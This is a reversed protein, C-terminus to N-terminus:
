VIGGPPLPRMRNRRSALARAAQSPSLGPDPLLALLKQAQASRKAAEEQDAASKLAPAPAPAPVHQVPAESRAHDRKSFRVRGKATLPRASEGSITSARVQARVPRSSVAAGPAVEGLRDAASTARARMLTSLLSGPQPLPAAVAPAVVPSPVAVSALAPRPVLGAALSPVSARLWVQFRRPIEAWPRGRGGILSARLYEIHEPRPPCPGVARKGIASELAGYIVHRLTLRGRTGRAPGKIGEGHHARRAAAVGVPLDLAM